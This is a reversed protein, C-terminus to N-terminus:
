IEIVGITRELGIEKVGEVEHLVKTIITKIGKKKAIQLAKAMIPNPDLCYEDGYFKEQKYGWLSVSFFERKTKYIDKMSIIFSISGCNVRSKSEWVLYAEDNRCIMAIKNKGRGHVWFYKYGSFIALIELSVKYSFKNVLDRLKWRREKHLRFKELIELPAACSEFKIMEENVQREKDSNIEMERKLFCIKGILNNIELFLEKRKM